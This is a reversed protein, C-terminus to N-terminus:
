RRPGPYPSFRGTSNTNGASNKPDAARRSSGNSGGTTVSRWNSTCRKEPDAKWTGALSTGAVNVIAQAANIPDTVPPNTTAKNVATQRSNDVVVPTATPAEGIGTLIRAALKDAPRLEVGQTLQRRAVETRDLMLYHYGLLFRVNAESPNASVYHELNRLQGTYIDTASLAGAFLGM